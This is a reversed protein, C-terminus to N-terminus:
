PLSSGFAEPVMVANPGQVSSLASVVLDKGGRPILGREGSVRQWAM